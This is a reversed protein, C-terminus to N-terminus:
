ITSDNFRQITLYDFACSVERLKIRNLSEVVYRIVNKKM